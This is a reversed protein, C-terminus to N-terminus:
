KQHLCQDSDDDAAGDVVALASQQAPQESLGAGDGLVLELGRPEGAAGARGDGQALDVVAEHRVAKLGLALLADGDVHGVAVQHQGTAPPRDQGVRRAM